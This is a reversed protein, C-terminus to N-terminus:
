GPVSLFPLRTPVERAEDPSQKPVPFSSCGPPQPSSAGNEGLPSTGKAKPLGCDEFVDPQPTCHWALGGDGRGGTTSFRPKGSAPSSFTM